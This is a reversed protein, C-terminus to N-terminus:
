TVASILMLALIVWALITWGVQGDGGTYPARRRRYSGLGSALGIRVGGINGLRLGGYARGSLLSVGFWFPSRRFSRTAYPRLTM